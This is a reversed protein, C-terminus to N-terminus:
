VSFYTMFTMIPHQLLVHFWNSEEVWCRQGSNNFLFYKYLANFLKQWPKATHVLMSDLSCQIGSQFIYFEPSSCCSPALGFMWLLHTCTCHVGCDPCAGGAVPLCKARVLSSNLTELHCQRETRIWQINADPMVSSRLCCSRWLLGSLFYCDATSPAWGVKLHVSTSLVRSSPLNTSDETGWSHGYPDEGSPVVACHRTNSQVSCAPAPWFALSSCVSSLTNRLM